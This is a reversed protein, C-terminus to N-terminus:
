GIAPSEMKQPGHWFGYIGCAIAIGLSVFSSAISLILVSRVTSLDFKWVFIAQVLLTLVINSLNNWWYVFRRASHIVWM